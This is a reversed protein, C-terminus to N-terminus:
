GAAQRRKRWWGALGFCIALSGFVLCSSPEPIMVSQFTTGFRNEDYTVGNGFEDSAFVMHKVSNSTFLPFGVSTLTPAGASSETNGNPDVWVTIADNGRIDGTVVNLGEIKAVIQFTEGVAVDAVLTETRQRISTGATNRQRFRVVLDITGNGQGEFGWQLGQMQTDSSSTFFESDSLVDQKNVFGTVNLGTDDTAEDLRALGGMYFTQPSANFDVIERYVRRIGGGFGTYFVSGGSSPGLSGNQVQWTGTVTTGNNWADEFGFVDPNQPSPGALISPPSVTPDSYEGASPNAGTLFPDAAILSADVARASFVLLVCLTFFITFTKLSTAMMCPNASHSQKLVDDPICHDLADGPIVVGV